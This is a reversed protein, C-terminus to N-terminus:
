FQKCWLRRETTSMFHVDHGPGLRPRLLIYKVVGYQDLWNFCSDNYSWNLGFDNDPWNPGFWQRDILAFDNNNYFLIFIYIFFIFARICFINYTNNHFITLEIFAFVYNIFYDSAICNNLSKLSCSTNWWIKM